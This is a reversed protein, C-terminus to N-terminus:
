APLRDNLIVTSVIFVGVSGVVAIPVFHEHDFAMLILLFLFAMSIVVAFRVVSLTRSHASDSQPSADQKQNARSSWANRAHVPTPIDEAEITDSWYTRRHM